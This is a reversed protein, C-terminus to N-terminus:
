RIIQRIHDTRKHSLTRQRALGFPSIAASHPLTKNARHCSATILAKNTNSNSCKAIQHRRHHEAAQPWLHHSCRVTYECRQGRNFIWLQWKIISVPSIHQKTWAMSTRLLFFEEKTWQNRTCVSPKWFCNCSNNLQHPTDSPQEHRLHSMILVPKRTIMELPKHDQDLQKPCVHVHLGVM